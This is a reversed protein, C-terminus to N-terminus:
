QSEAEILTMAVATVRGVITADTPYRVHQARRQSQQSPILILQGDHMECWTCIYKERLEVFFVPRDFDTHWNVPPIRKQRPDIRVFSGPRIFPHLTYDDMGIYGYLPSNGQMEQLLAPIEEWAELMRSVLSTREVRLKERLEVAALRESERRQPPAGVLYTRPLSLATHDKEAEPVPVGSLIALRDYDLGYIVSLSYLKFITPALKGNEIDALSAHAIYYDPNQRDKAITRSLTEVDRLTLRLREREARLRKGWDPSSSTALMLRGVRYRNSFPIEFAVVM